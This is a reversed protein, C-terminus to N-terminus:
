AFSATRPLFYISGRAALINQLFADALKAAPAKENQPLLKLYFSLERFSLQNTTGVNSYGTHLQRYGRKERVVLSRSRTALM